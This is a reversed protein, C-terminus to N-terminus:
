EGWAFQRLRGLFNPRQAVGEALPSGDADRIAAAAAIAEHGALRRLDEVSSRRILAFSCAEPPDVRRSRQRDAVAGRRLRRRRPRLAVEPPQDILVRSRWLSVIQGPDLQERGDHTIIIEGASHELGSRIAQSIGLRRAHRVVTLQPFQCALDYAVEPTADISGDDIVVLEFRRTLEPLVDLLEAVHRQLHAQANHVPLFVSLSRNLIPNGEPSPNPRQARTSAAGWGRFPVPISSRRDRSEEGSAGHFLHRSVFLSLIPVARGVVLAGVALTCNCREYRAPRDDRSFRRDRMPPRLSGAPSCAAPHIPIGHRCPHLPAIKRRWLSGRRGNIKTGLAISESPRSAARSVPPSCVKRGPM